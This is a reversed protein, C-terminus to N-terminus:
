KVTLKVSTTRGDTLNVVLMYVGPKIGSLSLRPETGSFTRLKRGSLDFLTASSFEGSVMTYDHAPNPSVMVNGSEVTGIGTEVGFKEQASLSEGSAYVAKVEATHMGEPVNTFLYSCEKTRAVKNGDLSVVYEVEPGSLATNMDFGNGSSIQVDDIFLTFGDPSVCNIAVYKAAAPVSYEFPTWVQMPVDVNDALWVFSSPDADTTSYGVRIVEGYTRSYGRAMFKFAFDGHYTLRPSIFWDDNGSRGAFCALENEGSYPISASREDAMSPSTLWPNFVMFSCPQTRGPFDFDAEAFTRSGDGDRYQWGVEGASAVTFPTHNEFDDFIEGSENWTFLFGNDFDGTISTNVPDAIIEKLVIDNITMDKQEAMDVTRTVTDYGPLTVTLAYTDRWINAFAVRGSEDATASYTENSDAGTITVSAGAASGSTANTTLTLTLSGIMDNTFYRSEAKASETGDPYVASVAYRYVGAPLNAWSADTFSTATLPENNVATWEESGYGKARWVNYKCVDPMASTKPKTGEASWMNSEARIMLNGTLTQNDFYKFEGSTYDTSYAYTHERLPFAKSDGDVGIGLFGPYNIAILCGHPADVPNDLSLSTWTDDANRVSRQSYLLTGTPNGDSDLDYVYVNVTNHPGGESTTYWSLKNLTMPTRFASGIVITGIEESFGIQTSPTGSDYVFQTAAAPTDWTITAADSAADVNLAAPTFHAYSLTIDGLNKDADLNFTSTYDVYWDKAVTVTTADSTVVNNLAFNGDADTTSTVDAYGKLMIEADGVPQGDPTLVRGNVTYTALKEISLNATADNDGITVTATESNKYGFMKASISFDGNPVFDFRYSGDAATTTHAHIESISVEAGEVPNGETDTVIGTVAAGGSRMMFTVCSNGSKTSYSKSTDFENYDNGYVIVKNGELPSTYYPQSLSVYSRSADALSTVTLMALNGGTYEFANTLELNLSTESKLIDVPGDFVLTYDDLSIWGDANSTRDTNALYVKVGVNTAESYTSYEFRIDTIRGRAVGIEDASYINQTAGFKDYLNLPHASSTSKKTGINLEESSGVPLITLALASTRDDASVMDGDAKVRGYVADLTCGYPFTYSISSTATEGGALPQSVKTSALTNGDKDVLEVTYSDYTLTGKNVVTVAYAYTNGEIPKANGTVSTAALNLDVMKEIEIRDFYLNSSGQTALDRIAINCNTVEDGSGTTFRFEQTAFASSRSLSIEGIQQLPASTDSNSLLYFSLPHVGNAMANITVKYTSEPELEIPTSILWDDLDYSASNIYAIDAKAWSLYMQSWTNNDANADYPTWQGYDDGFECVYPVGLKPGLTITSSTTAESTGCSSTATIKYSYTGATEAGNDTCETEAINEAIIKEDPYRVVTYTMTEHDCWGGNTGVTVPTWSIHASNPSLRNITIDSVAAPVDKGVFASVSASAGAGNANYATILWTHTAGNEGDIIDTFSSRKGPEADSITGVVNGDRKIEVKTIAKLQEGGFTLEPNTWSLTAQQLGGEAATATPAKVAAPCNDPAAFSPIYLGAIQNDGFDQLRTVAGTATNVTGVFCESLEITGSENLRRTSAIWYLTRTEHDFEMSQFKEPYHGTAGIVKVDGTNKDISCFDGDFSIAYLQGSYSAALTFFKRDLTAVLHSQATNLNIIYLGSVQENIRSIAYMTNTAWDYTMDNILNNYGSLTGVTEYIGAELNVRVLSKPVESTGNSQSSAVYYAGNGFAGATSTDYFGVARRFVPESDSKLDFSVINNTLSSQESSFALIGYATNDIAAEAVPLLSTFFVAVGALFKHIFKM